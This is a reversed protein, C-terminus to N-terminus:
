QCYRQAAAMVIVNRGPWLLLIFFTYQGLLCLGANHLLVNNGTSKDNRLTLKGTQLIDILRISYRNASHLCCIYSSQSYINISATPRSPPFPQNTCSFINHKDLSELNGPLIISDHLTFTNNQINNSILKTHIRIQITM